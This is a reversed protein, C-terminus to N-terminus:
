RKFITVPRYLPDINQAFGDSPPLTEFGLNGNGKPLVPGPHWFGYRADGPYAREAQPYPAPIAQTPYLQSPMPPKAM